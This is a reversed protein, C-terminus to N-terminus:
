AGLTDFLIHKRQASIPVLTLGQRDEADSFPPLHPPAVHSCPRVATQWPSVSTGM